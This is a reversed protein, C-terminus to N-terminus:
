RTAPGAAQRRVLNHRLFIKARPLLAHREHRAGAFRQQSLQVFHPGLSAHQALPVKATGAALGEAALRATSGSLPLTSWALQVGADHSLDGSRLLPTVDLGSAYLQLRTREYRAAVDTLRHLEGDVASLVMNTPFWVVLSVDVTLGAAAISVNCAGGATATPLLRLMCGDLAVASAATACSPTVALWVDDHPRSTVLELDVNARTATSSLADVLTLKVSMRRQPRSGGIESSGHKKCMWPWTGSLNENSPLFADMAFLGGGGGGGGSHRDKTSAHVCFDLQHIASYKERTREVWWSLIPFFTLIKYQTSFFPPFQSQRRVTADQVEHLAAQM